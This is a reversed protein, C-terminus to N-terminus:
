KLRSSYKASLITDPTLASPESVLLRRFEDVSVFRGEQSEESLVIHPNGAVAEFVTISEWEVGNSVKWKPSIFKCIENLELDLSLEEKAERKAAQIYTEGSSVHGTCSASWFGPFCEKTNSRKQIYLERRLNYLFIVIARHLLGLRICERGPRVEIVNDQQDIVDFNETV